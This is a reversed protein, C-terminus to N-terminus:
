YRTVTTGDSFCVRTSQTAPDYDASLVTAGSILQNNLCCPGEAQSAPNGKQYEWWRRRCETLNSQVAQALENVVRNGPHNKLPVLSMLVVATDLFSFTLRAEWRGASDRCTAHPPCHDRSYVSLKASGGTVTVVEVTSM